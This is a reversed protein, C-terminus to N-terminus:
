VFLVKAKLEKHNCQRRILSFLSAMGSALLFVHLTSAVTLKVTELYFIRAIDLSQLISFFNNILLWNGRAARASACASYM